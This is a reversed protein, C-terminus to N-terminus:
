LSPNPFSLTLMALTFANKEAVQNFYVDTQYTSHTAPPIVQQTYDRAAGGSGEDGFVHASFDEHVEIAENLCLGAQARSCEDDHVFRYTVKISGPCSTYFAVKQANPNICHAAM